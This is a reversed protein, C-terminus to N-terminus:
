PRGRSTASFSARWSGPSVEGGKSTTPPSSCSAGLSAGTTTTGSSTYQDSGSTLSATMKEVYVGHLQTGQRDKRQEERGM